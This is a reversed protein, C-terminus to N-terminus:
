STKSSEMVSLISLLPLSIYRFAIALPPPTKKKLPMGELGCAGM